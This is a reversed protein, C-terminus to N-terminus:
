ALIPCHDRALVQRKKWARPRLHPLAHRPISRLPTLHVRSHRVDFGVQTREQFDVAVGRGDVCENRLNANMPTRIEHSMSALFVSKASTADVATDRAEALEIAQQALVDIQGSIKETMSAFARAHAGVEDNSTPAVRVSYDGEAIREVANRLAIIPRSIRGAVYLSVLTGVMLVALSVLLGIQCEESIRKHIPALSSALVLKGLSVDQFRVPATTIYRGDRERVDSRSAEVIPDIALSDPNFAAFLHGVSDVVAIYALASDRRAWSFAGAVASFDGYHLGISVSLAVMEAAGAVQEQKARLADRRFKAPHYIGVFASILLAVIVGSAAVKVRIQWRQTTATM